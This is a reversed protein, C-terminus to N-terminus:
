ESESADSDSEGKLFIMDEETLIDQVDGWSECEEVITLADNITM